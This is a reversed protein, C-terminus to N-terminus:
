YTAKRFYIGPKWLSANANASVFNTPGVLLAPEGLGGFLVVRPLNEEGMVIRVVPQYGKISSIGPPLNTGRLDIYFGHQPPHKHVLNTAWDQLKAPDVRARVSAAFERDRIARATFPFLLLALLVFGVIILASCLLKKDPRM